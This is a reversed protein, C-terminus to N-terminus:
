YWFAFRVLAIPSIGVKLLTKQRSTVFEHGAAEICTDVAEILEMKISRISEAAKPSQRQVIRSYTYSCLITAGHSNLSHVVEFHELADYLIAGPKTSGIKFVDETAALISRLKSQLMSKIIIIPLSGYAGSVCRSCAALIRVQWSNYNESWWNGNGFAGNWRIYVQLLLFRM